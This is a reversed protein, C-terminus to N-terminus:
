VDNWSAGGSENDPDADYRSPPRGKNLLTERIDAVTSRRADYYRQALVPDKSTLENLYASKWTLPLDSEIKEDITPQVNYWRKAADFALARAIVSDDHRNEPASYRANGHETLTMEYSLLELKAIEDALFFANKKEIALSLAKIIDGKSKMTTQFGRLTPKAGPAEYMERRLAELNPSGISNLECLVDRVNWQRITEILRSRQFHWDIKNFRDLFVERKCSACFVSIATYDNQQGWDVGAVIIHGLHEKPLPVDHILVEDVGRFVAGESTIFEALIEQRFAAEPMTRYLHLMEDFSIEPNELPHPERVLTTGVIRCGLTPAQMAMSDERSLADAWGQHFWNMGKPTGIIWAWGKTDILMPRLSENWAIPSVDAAEDVVVGHATHGRVSDPNDLSRYLIQGGTPFDWTMRSINATAIDAVAKRTEDYAVRAQDYIPAGWIIKEGRLAAEVAISM